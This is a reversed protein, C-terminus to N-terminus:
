NSVLVEFAEEVEGDVSTSSPDIGIARFRAYTNNMLNDVSGKATSSVGM